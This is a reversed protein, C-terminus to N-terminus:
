LTNLSFNNFFLLLLVFLLSKDSYGQEMMCGYLEVRMVKMDRYKDPILRFYRGVNNGLIPIYLPSTIESSDRPGQFVQLFFSSLNQQKKMSQLEISKNRCSQDYISTKMKNQMPQGHTVSAYESSQWIDLIFHKIFFIFPQFGNVIKAFPEM